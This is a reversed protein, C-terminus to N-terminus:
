KQTGNLWNSNNAFAAEVDAMDDTGGLFIPCRDHIHKPVLDLVRPRSSLLPWPSRSTCSRLKGSRSKRDSPYAFVGGYLLTRHVDAVMSGIYRASYPKLGSEPSPFKLSDFYAKTADDWYLSNGENVSYIKGRSPIRINPHTLIFEGLAPDLTFGEVSNNGFTLVMNCSSGYMCYGGAVIESGPVLIEDVTAQPGSPLRWIGFITGVNVGADINSSGDLPDFTICYKGRLEEPVVVIDDVEESVMFAFKGSSMMANVFMENSLVDLKKQDEGQVNTNGALGVPQSEVFKCGVQVGNMAITLDGTAEPHKRQQELMYRTLTMINTKHHDTM